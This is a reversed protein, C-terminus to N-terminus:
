APPLPTSYAAMNLGATWATELVPHWWHTGRNGPHNVSRAFVVTGGTTFRLVRASRPVIRHPTTGKDTWESQPAAARATVVARSGEVRPNGITIGRRLAGTEGKPTRGDVRALAQAPIAARAVVLGSWRRIQDPLNNRILAM